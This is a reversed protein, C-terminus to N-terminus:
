RPKRRSGTAHAHIQIRKLIGDGKVDCLFPDSLLSLESPSIHTASDFVDPKYLLSLHQQGGEKSHFCKYLPIEGESLYERIFLEMEKISSPAEQVALIDPDIQRIVAAARGATEDTNSVHGEREFTPKFTNKEDFWDNMWEINFSAVTIITM